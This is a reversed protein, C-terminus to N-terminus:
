ATISYGRNFTNSTTTTTCNAPVQQKFWIFRCQGFTLTGVAQVNADTISTPNVFTVGSPATNENAIATPGTGGAGAVIPDLGITINDQGPTNAAIWELISLMSMSAHINKVAFCHYKTVGALTEAKTLNKFMKETQNAVTITDSVNSGPLSANVVTIALGGAGTGAGQIFYRGDAGVAVATGSAGAYPTWTLTKGSYTYTLTGAGPTNGTADDITVGTILSLGSTSQNLVRSSSIAGGISLAPDSNSGGGSYYMVYDALTPDAM